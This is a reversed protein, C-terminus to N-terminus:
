KAADRIPQTDGRNAHMQAARGAWIAILLSGLMTLEAVRKVTKARPPILLELRGAGAM